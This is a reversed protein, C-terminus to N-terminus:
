CSRPLQKGVHPGRPSPPLETDGSAPEIRHIARRSLSVADVLFEDGERTSFRGLIAKPPVIAGYVFGRCPLGRGNWRVFRRAHEITACWCLGRAHRPICVGRYLALADHPPPRDGIFGLDSLIVILRQRHPWLRGECFRWYQELLATREDRTLDDVHDIFATIRNYPTAADMAAETAYYHESFDRPDRRPLQTTNLASRERRALAEVRKPAVGFERAVRSREALTLRLDGSVLERVRTRLERETRSSQTKAM